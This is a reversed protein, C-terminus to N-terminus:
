SAPSTLPSALVSRRLNLGELPLQDTEQAVEQESGGPPAHIEPNPFLAEIGNSPSQFPSPLVSMAVYLLPLQCNAVEVPDLKWVPVIGLREKPLPVGSVPSKLPSPIM